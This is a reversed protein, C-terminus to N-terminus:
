KRGTLIRLLSPTFRKLLWYATLCMGVTLLFALVFVATFGVDSAPAIIKMLIRAIKNCILSHSVYIFFSSAALFGNVKCWGKQLLWVALNYAFLLGVVINVQKVAPAWDPRIHLFLLGLLGLCPYLLMSPKLFRGFEAIMDKKRISMYAGWSFFFFASAFGNYNLPEYFLSGFWLGGLLVVPYFTFKRILRYLIPACLVVIMLDRIFWLPIDIPYKMVTNAEKVSEIAPRLSDDYNWFASLFGSLNPHFPGTNEVFAHFVPLHTVFLLAIAVTNWILYPILLTKTRNKLKQLYKARTLEIGLFFVYGSIFYYIPVSQGSLFARIFYLLEQFFPYEDFPPIWSNGQITEGPFTHVLVVVLALPFRLLDLAQSHLGREPKSLIPTDM